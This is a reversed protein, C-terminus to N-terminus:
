RLVVMTQQNLALLRGDEGWLERQEVCFGDDSALLRGRHLLPAEPDLGEFHPFPQFTFAITAMARLETEIPFLAPWWADVCGALFAADRRTGPNRPRIWGETVPEAAGSLPFGAKARYELFQSFRPAMGEPMDIPEIARWALETPPPLYAGDRASVKQKGLVGVAHAQVAGQQVLRATATTVANGVRLVETVLEVEGPQVPGCLESTLSRLERGPAVAELARVLLATTLGGYLGKGQFWADPLVARARGDALPTPTILADFPGDAAPLSM